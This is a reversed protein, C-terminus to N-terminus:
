KAGPVQYIWGEDAAREPTIKQGGWFWNHGDWLFARYLDRHKLVHYTHPRDLDSPPM